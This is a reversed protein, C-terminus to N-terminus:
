RRAKGELQSEIYELLTIKKNHKKPYQQYYMEKVKSDKTYGDYISQADLVPIAKDKGEIIRNSGDNYVVTIKWM